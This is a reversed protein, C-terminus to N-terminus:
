ISATVKLSRQVDKVDEEYKTRLWAKESNAAEKHEDLHQQSYTFREILMEVAAALQRVQPVNWATEAAQM